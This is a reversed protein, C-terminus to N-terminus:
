DQVQASGFTCATSACHMASKYFYIVGPSIHLSEEGVVRVKFLNVALSIYFLKTELVSLTLISLLGVKIKGDPRHPFPLNGREFAVPWHILYLDM